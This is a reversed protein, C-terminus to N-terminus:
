EKSNRVLSCPMTEIAIASVVITSDKTSTNWSTGSGLMTFSAGRPGCRIAAAPKKKEGVVPSFSRTRHGNQLKWLDPHFTPISGSSTCWRERGSQEYTAAHSPSTSMSSGAASPLKACAATARSRRLHVVVRFLANPRAFSFVTPGTMPIAGPSVSRLCLCTIFEIASPPGPSSNSSRAVALSRTPRLRSSAIPTGTLKASPPSRVARWQPAAIPLASVHLSRM